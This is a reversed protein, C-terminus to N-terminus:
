GHHLFGPKDVEVIKKIAYIPWEMSWSTDTDKALRLQMACFNYSEPLPLECGSKLIIQKLNVKETREKDICSMIRVHYDLLTDNRLLYQTRLTLVRKLNKFSVGYLIFEKYKSNKFYHPWMKDM